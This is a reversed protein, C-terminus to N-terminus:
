VEYNLRKIKRNKEGVVSNIKDSFTFEVAQCNFEILLSHLAAEIAKKTLGFNTSEIAIELINDSVQVIRYKQFDDTVMAIRRAILDPYIKVKGFILVDDDRGVINDLATNISGCACQEHRIKLVDNLKYKVLPQSQRSFDTIIPYFYDKDLWEKEVQIFDENLHMTGHPCTSGLFGETCQYVETIKLNFTLEILAKDNKHLVEAFSIIQTPHLHISQGKQALCIDMLLTPPAALVHPKYENLQRLLKDIPTFIDFYSFQFLSSHVSSYLNSNARLLFAVKQTRFLAPKLVKQMVLAAWLARENESVLFIGRKGSTGTSLGITIGNIENKFDRSKEADIAVKMADEKTITVTNISDFNSMFQEKSMLPVAHWNFNKNEFYKAYFPSKALVNKAFLALKKQQYKELEARNKLKKRLLISLLYYLVKLKFKM